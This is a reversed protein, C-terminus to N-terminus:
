RGGKSKSSTRPKGAPRSKRKGAGGGGGGKSGGAGSPAETRSFVISFAAKLSGETPDYTLDVPFKLLTYVKIRGLATLIGFSERRLCGGAHAGLVSALM